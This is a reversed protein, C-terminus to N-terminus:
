DIMQNAGNNGNKKAWTVQIPHTHAKNKNEKQRRGKERQEETDERDTERKATSGWGAIQIKEARKKRGGAAKEQERIRKAGHAESARGDTTKQSDKKPIKEEKTREEHRGNNEAM